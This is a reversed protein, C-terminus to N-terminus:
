NFQTSRPFGEISRQTIPVSVTSRFIITLIRFLEGVWYRLESTSEEKILESEHELKTLIQFANYDKISLKTSLVKKDDNMKGKSIAIFKQKIIHINMQKIYIILRIPLIQNNNNSLSPLSSTSVDVTSAILVENTLKTM